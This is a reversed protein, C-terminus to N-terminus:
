EWYKTKLESWLYNKITEIEQLYPNIRKDDTLTELKELLTLADNLKYISSIFMRKQENTHHLTTLKM